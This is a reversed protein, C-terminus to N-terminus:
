NWCTFRIGDLHKMTWEQMTSLANSQRSALSEKRAYTSYSSSHRCTPPSSMHLLRRSLRINEILETSITKSISISAFGLPPSQRLLAPLRRCVSPSGCKLVGIYIQNSLPPDHYVSTSDFSKLSVHKSRLVSTLFLHQHNGDLRDHVVAHSRSGSGQPQWKQRGQRDGTQQSQSRCSKTEADGDERM